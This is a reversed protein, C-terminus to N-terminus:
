EAQPVASRPGNEPSVFRERLEPQVYQGRLFSWDVGEEASQLDAKNCEKASLMDALQFHEQRVYHWFLITTVLLPTMAISAHGARKLSLMGLITVQSIMMGLPVFRFFEMWLKGGSDPFPPYIYVLQHLICSKQIVLCMFIFFSSLPAITTYVFLVMFYLVTVSLRTCQYFNVPDALPRLFLFSKQRERETSRPGICYRLISLVIPVPRLM